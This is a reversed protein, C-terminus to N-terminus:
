PPSPLSAPPPPPPPAPALARAAPPLAPGLLLLLRSLSLLPSYLTMTRARREKDSAEDSTPNAMAPRRVSGSRRQLGGGEARNRPRGAALRAPRRARTNASVQDRGAGSFGDPSGPLGTM